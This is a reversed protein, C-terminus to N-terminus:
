QLQSALDTDIVGDLASVFAKVKKVCDEAYTRSIPRPQHRNKKTKFLDAEHVIRHRRDIYPQLYTKAADKTTLKLRKRVHEWIDDIGLLKLGHQIQGADQYTRDSLAIVLIRRLEEDPRKRHLLALCKELPLEKRLIELVGGPIGQGGKRAYHQILQVVNELIKDHMYSDLASVAFVVAARLVDDAEPLSPPRGRPFSKRHTTLLGDARKVGERFAAIAEM